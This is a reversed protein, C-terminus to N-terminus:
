LACYYNIPSICAIANSVQIKISSKLHQRGHDRCTVTVEAQQQVEYDFMQTTVIKYEMNYLRMMTFDDSSLTCTIKGAEGGDLDVVSMHAVFHGAEANEPVEALGSATLTNIRIDPANDNVDQVNITYLAYSTQPNTGGDTAVIGLAYRSAHEFDLSSRLVLAGTGSEMSFVNGFQKATKADFGFYVAGNLGSDADTAKLRDITSGVPFNEMVFKEYTANEFCPANDNDDIVVIDLPLRGAKPPDGGDFSVLELQYSTEQEYDLRGILILKVVDPVGPSTSLEYQLEFNPHHPPHLRYRRIGFQPSDLDFASLLTFTSRLESSEPIDVPLYQAAFSPSNDNVDVIKVVVKIIQFFAMPQVAVDYSLTCDVMQPCMTDRDIRTITRLQGTREDIEIQLPEPFNLLKFRLQSLATLNHGYKTTLGFDEALNGIQTGIHIEENISYEIPPSSSALLRSVLVTLMTVRLLLMAPPELLRYIGGSNGNHVRTKM